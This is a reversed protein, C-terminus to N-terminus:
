FLDPVGRRAGYEFAQQLREVHAETQLLHQAFAEKLKPHNAAEAM